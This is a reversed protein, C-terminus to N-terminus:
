ILKKSLRYTDKEYNKGGRMGDAFALLNSPSLAKFAHAHYPKHTIITNKKLIELKPKGLIKGNKDVKCSVFKLKGSIVFSYKFILLKIFIM